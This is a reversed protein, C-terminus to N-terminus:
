GNNIRRLDNNYCNECYGGSSELLTNVTIEIEEGCEGCNVTGLPIM